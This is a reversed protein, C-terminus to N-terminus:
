ISSPNTDDLIDFRLYSAYFSQVVLHKIASALTHATPPFSVLIYYLVKDHKLNLIINFDTIDVFLCIGM